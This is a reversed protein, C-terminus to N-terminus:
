KTRTKTWEGYNKQSLRLESEVCGRQEDLFPHPNVELDASDLSMLVRAERLPSLVVLAVADLAM